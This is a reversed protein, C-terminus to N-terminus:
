LRRWYTDKGFDINVRLDVFILTTRIHLHGFLYSISIPEFTRQYGVIYSFTINHMKLFGIHDKDFTYACAEIHLKENVYRKEYEM